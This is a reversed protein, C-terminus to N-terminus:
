SLDRFAFPRLKTEAGMVKRLVCVISRCGEFCLFHVARLGREIIQIAIGCCCEGEFASSCDRSIPGSFVSWLSSTMSMGGECDRSRVSELTSDLLAQYRKRSVNPM